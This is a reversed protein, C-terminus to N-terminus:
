VRKKYIKDLRLYEKIIDELPEENDESNPIGDIEDIIEDDPENTEEDSIIQVQAEDDNKNKELDELIFRLFKIHIHKKKKM